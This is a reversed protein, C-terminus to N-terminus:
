MKNDMIFDAESSFGGAPHPPSTRSGVSKVSAKRSSSDKLTLLIMQETPSPISKRSHKRSSPSGPIIGPSASSLTRTLVRPSHRTNLVVTSYTVSEVARTPSEGQDQKTTTELSWSRRVSLKRAIVPLFELLERRLNTNLWGYLIPNTCATSMALLHCSGLVTYLTNPDYFGSYDFDAMLNVVHWPLWSVGFAVSIATLLITTKRNRDIEKHARRSDNKNMMHRALYRKISAHIASLVTIPFVYMLVMTLILYTYKVEISPWSPVCRKYLLIDYLKVHEVQYWSYLPITTCISVIWIFGLSWGVYLHSRESLGIVIAAYRDVAIAVITSISVMINTGQVVQVSKCIITGLNFDKELLQILTFPMCFICMSMDSFALNLIYLNRPTRMTKKRWIVYSILVNGIVGALIVLVYCVIFVKEAAPSIYSSGRSSHIIEEFTDSSFNIRFKSGLPTEHLTGQNEFLDLTTRNASNLDSMTTQPPQPLFILNRISSKCNIGESCNVFSHTVLSKELDELQRRKPAQIFKSIPNTIM